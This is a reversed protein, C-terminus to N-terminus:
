VNVSVNNHFPVFVMKQAEDTSGKGPKVSSFICTVTWEYVMKLYLEFTNIVTRGSCTRRRGYRFEHRVVFSHRVLYTDLESGIM